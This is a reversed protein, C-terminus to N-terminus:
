TEFSGHQHRLSPYLSFHKPRGSARSSDQLQPRCSSTDITASSRRSPRLRIPDQLSAAQRQTLFLRRSNTSHRINFNRSSHLRNSPGTFPACPNLFGNQSLLPILHVTVSAQLLFLSSTELSGNAATMRRNTITVTNYNYKKALLGRHKICARRVLWGNTFTLPM